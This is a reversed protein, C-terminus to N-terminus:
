DLLKTTEEPNKWYKFVYIYNVFKKYSFINRKLYIEFCKSRHSLVQRLNILEKLQQSMKTYKTYCWCTYHDFFCLLKTSQRFKWYARWSLGGLAGFLVFKAEHRRYIGFVPTMRLVRKKLVCLWPADERLLGGSLTEPPEVRAEGLPRTKEDPLPHNTNLPTLGKSRECAMRLGVTLTTLKVGRTTSNQYLHAPLHTPWSQRRDLQCMTKKKMRTLNKTTGQLTQLTRIHGCLSHRNCKSVTRFKLSVVVIAVRLVNIEM